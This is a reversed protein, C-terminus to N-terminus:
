GRRVGADPHVAGKFLRAPVKCGGGGDGKRAHRLPRRVCPARDYLRLLRARAHDTRRRAAACSQLREHRAGHRAKLHLGLTNSFSMGDRAERDSGDKVARALYKSAYEASTLALMDSMKNAKNSLFCETAHFLADFGQYATLKPPVGLTLGSDVVSLVPFMGPHLFGIKEGTATNTVVATCDAESGTGATTTIAVLPLPQFHIPIGGGTGASVFDWYNEGNPAALAIAKAADMVSGGGLAVVYDCHENRALAIGANVAELTPNSGIGAYVVPPAGASSLAQYVRDYAGSKVASGGKSMVLLAKRGPMYRNNLESLTGEGFVIRTPVYFEFQM